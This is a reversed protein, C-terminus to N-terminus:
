EGSCLNLIDDDDRFKEDVFDLIYPDNKIAAIVTKKDSKLRESAFQITAGENKVAVLVVDNDDQFEPYNELQWGDVKVAAIAIEKENSFKM